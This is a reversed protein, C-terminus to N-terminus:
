PLAPETVKGNERSKQVGRLQGKKAGDTSVQSPESVVLVCQLALYVKLPLKDCIWFDQTSKNKQWSFKYPDFLFIDM